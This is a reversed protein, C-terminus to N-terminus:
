VHFTGGVIGLFEKVDKNCDCPDEVKGSDGGPFVIRRQLRCRNSVDRSSLSSTARGPVMKPAGEKSQRRSSAVGKRDRLLTKLM